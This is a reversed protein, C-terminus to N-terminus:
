QIVDGCWRGPLMYTLHAVLSASPQIHRGTKATKGSVPSTSPQAICSGASSCEQEALHSAFGSGVVQAVAFRFHPHAQHPALARKGASVMTTCTPTRPASINGNQGLGAKRRLVMKQYAGKLVSPTANRMPVSSFSKAQLTTSVRM